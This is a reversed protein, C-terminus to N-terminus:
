AAPAVRLRDEPDDGLVAPGPAEVLSLAPSGVSAGEDVVAAAKREGLDPVSDPEVVVTRM